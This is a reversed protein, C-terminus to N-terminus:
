LQEPRNPRQKLRYHYHGVVQMGISTYLANAPLNARTVLLSLTHADHDQAWFAAARMINTGVGLRQFRPLVEIAHIMAINKHLAVFAVGAPQDKIRALIATKPSPCRATASPHTAESICSYPRYWSSFLQMESPSSCCIVFSWELMWCYHHHHPM